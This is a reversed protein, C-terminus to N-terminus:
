KAGSVEAPSLSGDGDQDANQFDIIRAALFEDLSLSGDGNKDAAHFRAPDVGKLEEITLRGDRNADDFYFVEVERGMFEQLDIKGDHNRDAVEFDSQAWAAGCVATAIAAVIAFVARHMVFEKRHANCRTEASSGGIVTL